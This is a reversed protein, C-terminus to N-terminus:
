CNSIAGSGRIRKMGTETKHPGDLVQEEDFRIGMTIKVIMRAILSSICVFVGIFQTVLLGSGFVGVALMGWIGGILM